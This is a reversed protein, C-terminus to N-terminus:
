VVCFSCLHDSPPYPAGEPVFLSVGQGGGVVAPCGVLLHVTRFCAMAVSYPPLTLQHVAAVFHIRCLWRSCLCYSTCKLPQM